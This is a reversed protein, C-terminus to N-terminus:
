TVANAPLSIGAPKKRDIISFFDEIAQLHGKLLIYVYSCSNNTDMLVHNAPYSKIMANTFFSENCKTLYCELFAIQEELEHSLLRVSDDGHNKPKRCPSDKKRTDSM